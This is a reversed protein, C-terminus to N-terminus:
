GHINDTQSFEDLGHGFHELQIAIKRSAHKSIRGGIIFVPLIGMACCGGFIVGFPMTWASASTIIISIIWVFFAVTAFVMLGILTNSVMKIKKVEKSILYDKLSCDRPSMEFLNM